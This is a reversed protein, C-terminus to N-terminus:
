RACGRVLEDIAERSIHGEMPGFAAANLAGAASAMRGCEQLSRGELMGCLFGADFCDGSGTPDVEKVPYPPIDFAAHRSYISCGRKGKKLVVLEMPYRNFLQKVGAVPDDEGTLLALETESPLLVSCISIIPDIVEGLGREGL